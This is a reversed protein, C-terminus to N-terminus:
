LACMCHKVSHVSESHHSTLVHVSCVVLKSHYNASRVQARVEQPLLPQSLLHLMWPCMRLNFTLTPIDIVAVVVKRQEDIM